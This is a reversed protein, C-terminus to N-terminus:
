FWDCTHFDFSRPSYVIENYALVAIIEHIPASIKIKNTLELQYKERIMGEHGDCIDSRIFWKQEFYNRSLM